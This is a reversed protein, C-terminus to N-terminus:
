PMKILEPYFNGWKDQFKKLSQTFQHSKQFLKQSGITQHELHVINNKYLWGLKYGAKIARYCFDPDEFYAPSFREDFLGINNYVERKILMGGCGIYSFSENKHKCHKFPFYDRKMQTGNSTVIMGKGTPPTLRWAETGVIDYGNLMLNHLNELWGPGVIQDNDINVFYDASVYTAGLNRGKIVGLNEKSKILKWKDQGKELFKEAGDNSGNDIFILEYNETNGIINEAFMKTVSLNNHVLCVIDTKPHM